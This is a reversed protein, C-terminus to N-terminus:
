AQQQANTVPPISPMYRLCNVDHKDGSPAYDSYNVVGNVYVTCGLTTTADNPQPDAGFYEGDFALYHADSYGGCATIMSTTRGDPYRPSVVPICSPGTWYVVSEIQYTTAHAPAASLITTGASVGVAAVGIAGSILRARLM